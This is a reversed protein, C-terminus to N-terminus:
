SIVDSNYASKLYPTNYRVLLYTILPLIILVAISKVTGNGPWGGSEVVPSCASHQLVLQISVKDLPGLACSTYKLQQPM